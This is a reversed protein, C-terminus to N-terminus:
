PPLSLSSPVMMVLVSMVLVSVMALLLVSNEYQERERGPRLTREASPAITATTITIGM